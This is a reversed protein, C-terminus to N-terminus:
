DRLDSNSLLELGRVAAARGNSLWNASGGGSDKCIRLDSRAIRGPRPEKRNKRMVAPWIANRLPQPPCEPVGTAGLALGAGTDDGAGAGVGSGAAAPAVMVPVTADPDLEGAPTMTATAPVLTEATESAPPLKARFLTGG